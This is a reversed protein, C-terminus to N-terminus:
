PVIFVLMTTASLTTRQGTMWTATDSAPPAVAAVVDLVPEAGGDARLRAALGAGFAHWDVGPPFPGCSAVSQVPEPARPDLLWVAGNSVDLVDVITEAFRQVADDDDDLGAAQRVRRQRVAEFLQLPEVGAKIGM